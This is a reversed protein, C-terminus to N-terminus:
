GIEGTLTDLLRMVETHTKDIHLPNHRYYFDLSLILEDRNWPPNKKPM